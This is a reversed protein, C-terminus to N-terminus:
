KVCKPSVPHKEQISYKLLCQKWQGGMTAKLRSQVLCPHEKLLMTEGTIRNLFIFCRIEQNLYRFNALQM